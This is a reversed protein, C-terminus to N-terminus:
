FTGAHDNKYVHFSFTTEETLLYHKNHILPYVDDGYVYETLLTIHAGKKMKDRVIAVGESDPYLRLKAYKGIEYVTKEVFQRLAEQSGLDVGFESVAEVPILSFTYALLTEGAYYWRDVAVVVSTKRQLNELTIQNPVELRFDMEMRDIKDKCCNYVPMGFRDLDGSPLQKNNTVFTGSGQVKKILGDDHLLGLAQRLTMRSVGLSQALKPESPLRSGVPFTGDTVMQYLKEYVQVYVLQKTDTDVKWNKNM